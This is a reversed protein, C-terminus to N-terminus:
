IGDEVFTIVESKDMTFMALHQVHYRLTEQMIVSFNSYKKRQEFLDKASMKAVGAV